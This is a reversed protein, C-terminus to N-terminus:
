NRGPRRRSPPSVLPTTSRITDNDTDAIVIGGNGDVAIGAPSRFSAEAGEGDSSGANGSGILTQVDGSPTVRKITNSGSDAVYLNGERDIALTGGCCGFAFGRALTTVEGSPTVKRIANNGTDGVYLNGSADIALGRPHNFTAASGAGDAFGIAGSGAFPVASDSGAASRLIRNSGSEAEYLNHAADVVMGASGFRACPAGLCTTVNGTPDIHRRRNSADRVEISGDPYVLMGGTFGTFDFRANQKSGDRFGKAAAQGAWTTTAGTVDIRRITHNGSDLVFINGVGDVGVAAPQDFLASSPSGDSSGETKPTGETVVIKPLRGGITVQATRTTVGSVNAAKLTYVTTAGPTVIRNGSDGVAGIGRDISVSTAGSTSWSLTVPQNAGSSPTAAFATIQPPPVTAVPVLISVTKTETANFASLTYIINQAPTVIRSGNLEVAVGDLTAKTAGATSWFLTVPVGAQRSDPVARFSLQLPLPPPTVTVTATASTSFGAATLTFTTTQLPTYSRSGTSAVAGIGNDISANAEKDIKWALTTSEGENVTAPTATFTISETSVLAQATVMGGPGTATLTYLTTESVPVVMSGALPVAGIGHDIVASTANATVWILRVTQGAVAPQPDAHFAVVTPPAPNVTVTVARTVTGGHGNRATLTYTTTQRPSVFVSGSSPLDDAVGNDIACGGFSETTAWTLTTQEGATIISPGAIFLDIAPPPYVVVTAPASVIDLGVSNTATLTYSTTVTPAISVSGNGPDAQVGLGHDISVRVANVTFWRLDTSQGATIGGPSAAFSLISAPAAFQFGNVLTGAQNDPNTVIVDYTGQSDHRYPTKLTIKVSSVVVVDTALRDGFAVTAGPAFNAGTVTVFTGGFSTGGTPSVSSVTPATGLEHVTFPQPSNVPKGGAFSFYLDDFTVAGGSRNDPFVRATVAGAPIQIPYIHEGWDYDLALSANQVHGGSGDLFEVLVKPETAAVTGHASGGAYATTGAPVSVPVDYYITYPTPLAGCGSTDQLLLAGSSPSLDRDAPDYSVLSGACPAITWTSLGGDFGGNPLLNQAKAGRVSFFLFTVAAAARVRSAFSM